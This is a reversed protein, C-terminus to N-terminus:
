RLQQLWRIAQPIGERIMSDYHDGQRGRVFTTNANTQKLKAAFDATQTIPVNTDDEAHFLFVPCRLQDTHADPSYDMIFQQFGPVAQNLAQVAQAPLRQQFNTAPAYAICGALRPEREAFQLALTAASSHGAIYIRKRDLAPVNALAYDLAARANAVGAEANKFARVGALLAAENAKNQEDVHGDLSFAVVGFGARVYPLHEARDDEALEIGHILPTGAPAVLVWPVSSGAQKAPLYIWIQRTEGGQLVSLEHVLIGPEIEHAPPLPPLEAANIRQAAAPANAMSLVEKQTLKGGAREPWRLLWVALVVLGTLVVVGGIGAVFWLALKQNSAPSRHASRHRAKRRQPLSEREDEAEEATRFRAQRVATPPEGLTRAPEEEAEPIAIVAQCSTCRIKRGRLEEV